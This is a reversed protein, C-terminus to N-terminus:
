GEPQIPASSSPPLPYEIEGDTYYTVLTYLGEWYTPLKQRIVSALTKNEAHIGLTPGHGGNKITYVYDSGFEIAAKLRLADEELQYM